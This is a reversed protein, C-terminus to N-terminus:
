EVPGPRPPHLTAEPFGLAPVTELRDHLSATWRACAVVSLPNLPESCFSRPPDIPCPEQISVRLPRLRAAPAGSASRLPTLPFHFSSSTSLSHNFYPM